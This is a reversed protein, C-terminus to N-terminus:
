ADMQITFRCSLAGRAVCDQERVRIAPNVLALLGEFAAAYYGGSLTAHTHTRCTPCGRLEISFPYPGVVQMEGAGAFTWAHRQIAALLLPLGVRSPLVRFLLRAAKPIRHKAVYEATTRGSRNFVAEARERPLRARVEHVLRIFWAEPIMGDPLPNPVGAAEAIARACEPGELAELAAKTQLVSNPGIRAAELASSEARFDIRILNNM